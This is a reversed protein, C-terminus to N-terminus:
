IDSMLKKLAAKDKKEKEMALVEKKSQKVKTTTDNPNFYPSDDSTEEKSDKKSNKSDKKEQKKLIKEKKKELALERDETSSSSSSNNRSTAIKIKTNSIPEEQVVVEEDQNNVIRSSIQEQNNIPAINSLNQINNLRSNLQELNSIIDNQLDIPDANIANLQKKYSLASVDRNFGITRNINFERYEDDLKDLNDLEYFRKFDAIFNNIPSKNHYKSYVYFRYLASTYKKDKIKQKQFECSLVIRKVIFYLEIFIILM